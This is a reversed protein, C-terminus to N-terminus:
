VRSFRNDGLPFNFTQLKQNEDCVASKFNPTTCLSLRLVLYLAQKVETLAAPCLGNQSRLQSNQQLEKVESKLKEVLNLLIEVTQCVDSDAIEKPDITELFKDVPTQPLQKQRM